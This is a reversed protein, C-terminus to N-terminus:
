GVVSADSTTGPTAHRTRVRTTPTSISSCATYREAEFVDCWRGGGPTDDARWEVGDATEGTSTGEVVVLDDNIIYNFYTYDHSMATVTEAVDGFLEAIEDTGTAVGWKPYYVRATPAFLEMFDTGADLRKFYDLVLEKREEDAMTTGM